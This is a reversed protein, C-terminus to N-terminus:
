TVLLKTLRASLLSNAHIPTCDYISNDHQIKETRYICKNV